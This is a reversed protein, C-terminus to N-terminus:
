NGSKMFNQYFEKYNHQNDSCFYKAKPSSSIKCFDDRQSMWGLLFSEELRRYANTTLKVFSGDFWKCAVVGMVYAVLMDVPVRWGLVGVLGVAILPYLKKRVMFPLCCVQINGTPDSECIRVIYTM